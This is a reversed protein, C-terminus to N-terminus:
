LSTTRWDNIHLVLIYVCECLDSIRFNSLPDYPRLLDTRVIFFVVVVVVDVDVFVLVDFRCLDM